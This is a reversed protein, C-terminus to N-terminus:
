SCNGYPAILDPSNPLLIEVRAGSNVTSITLEGQFKDIVSRVLTLGMSELEQQPIGNPFGKGNDTVVLSIQQSQSTTDFQSDLSIQIYNAPGGPEFAHSVGNDLLEFIVMALPTAIEVPVMKNSVDNITTISEAPVNASKLVLGIAMDTYKKLDAYLIEDQYLVCSEFYSLAVLRNQDNGFSDVLAPDSLYETRVSHLNKVLDLTTMNHKYVSRVLADQIELQEQLDDNARDAAHQMQEAQIAVNKAVLRDDYIKKGYLVAASTALAYCVIAWWAFWPPPLVQIELSAGDMNWVGASNAGRARFTYNGSPLNTYTASNRTGNDIWDTDFNELKYSYQNKSPELFDLASFSITFFYDNHSLQLKELAQLAVPLSPEKGAVTLNTLVVRPPTAVSELQEPHFRNYGKSGGFYLRGQSDKHSAGFNFDNDQLGHSSKYSKEVKGGLNLKLLGVTTSLWAYDSDDFEISYVSTQPMSSAFIETDDNNESPHKNKSSVILAGRDKTGLWINGDSAQAISMITQNYGNRGNGLDIKEFTGSALDFAYAGNETGIYVYGERSELLSLVKKEPIEFPSGKHIDRFSEVIGNHIRFLGARHTGIWTSGDSTHLIKTIGLNEHGGLSIEQSSGDVLNVVQLGKDFFGLWLEQEDVAASMVRHDNLELNPFLSKIPFHTALGEETFYLGDYTTVWIRGSSDASFSQVDNDVGSNEQNFLEFSSQRIHDLGLFTGVWLTDADPLLSLVADDSLVSNNTNFIRVMECDNSIESLGLQSAVWIKSNYSSIANIRGLEIRCGGRFAKFKRKAIDFKYMDGEETGALITEKDSIEIATIAVPAADLSGRITLSIVEMSEAAPQINYLGLDGGVWINGPTHAINSRPSIQLNQPHSKLWGAIEGTRTNYGGVGSNVTNFWIYGDRADKIRTINQYEALTDSFLSSFSESDPNFKAIGGGHMAVIIEGREGVEIHQIDSGPLWKNDLSSPTFTTIRIGDYKHLGAPTGVWLFGNSDRGISYITTQALLSTISSNRLQLQKGDKPQADLHSIFFIVIILPISYFNKINM